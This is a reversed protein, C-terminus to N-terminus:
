ITDFPHVITFLSNSLIHFSATMALNLTSDWLMYHLYYATPAIPLHLHNNPSAISNVTVV